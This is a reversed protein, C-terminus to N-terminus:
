LLNRNHLLYVCSIRKQFECNPMLYMFFFARTKDSLTKWMSEHTKEQKRGRKERERERERERRCFEVNVMSSNWELSWSAVLKGRRGKTMGKRFTFIDKWNALLVAVACLTAPSGAQGFRSFMEKAWVCIHMGRNMNNKWWAREWENERDRERYGLSVKEEEEKRYESEIDM